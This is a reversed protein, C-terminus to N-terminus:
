VREYSADNADLLGFRGILDPAGPWTAVKVMVFRYDAREIESWDFFSVFHMSASSPACVVPHDWYGSSKGVERNLQIALDGGHRAIVAIEPHHQGYDVLKLGHPRTVLAAFLANRVPEYRDRVDWAAHPDAWPDSVRFQANFLERSSILFRDIDRALTM